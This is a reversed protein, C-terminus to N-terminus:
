TLPKAALCLYMAAFAQPHAREFAAVARPDSVLPDGPNVAAYAHAASAAAFGFGLFSLGAGAVLGAVGRPTFVHEMGHFVLDRCMSTSYFDLFGFLPALRQARAGPMAAKSRVLARLARIGDITPALKHRDVLDRAAAISDRAAASYLGLYILGGPALNEALVSLGRAPQAVHHLVGLCEIYDFPPGRLDLLDGAIYTVNDLGLEATKRAAYALSPRSLDLAVIEAERFQSACQIAQQGTGCGAVLIRPRPAAHRVSLGYREAIAARFGAFPQPEERACVTWRPYPNEEYQSRVARSVPDAVADLAAIGAILARDQRPEDHMVRLLDAIAPDVTAGTDLWLEEGILRYAALVAAHSPAFSAHLAADLAAAAAVETPTVAWVYENLICQLALTVALPLPAAAPEAVLGARVATLMREWAPDTVLCQRLITTALPRALAAHLQPTAPGGALAAAVVSHQGLVRIAARFAAEPPAWGKTLAPPLAIALEREDPAPAARDLWRDLCATFASRDM